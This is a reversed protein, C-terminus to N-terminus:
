NSLIISKALIEFKEGFIEWNLENEFRLRTLKIISKINEPNDLLDQITSVYDDVSANLPLVYGNVGNEVVATVGGTDTAIVPLGYAAAEIFVIGLAEARTPLFLFHSQTLLERLRANDIPNNKDLFPIIEMFENKVPPICGCVILKVKYGKLSLKEITELAIDGGKRIWDVGLFLFNIQSSYDKDYDIHKPADINPGFSIIKVKEFDAKYFNISYDAAWKSPYIIAKSKLIARREISNSEKVSFSSLNSFINYYDKMQNFSSDSLYIIPLNTRLLAIETSATPAFILDINNQKIKKAFYKKAFFAKIFNHLSNYKKNYFLSHLKTFLTIFRFQTKSYKMPGLPIVKFGRKEICKFLIYYIGSWSKKDLPDSPTLFGINM